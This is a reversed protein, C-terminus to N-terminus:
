KREFIPNSNAEALHFSWLHGLEDVTSSSIISGVANLVQDIVSKACHGAALALKGRESQEAVEFYGETSSRM